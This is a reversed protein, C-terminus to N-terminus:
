SEIEKEGYRKEENRRLRGKERERERERKSKLYKKREIDKNVGKEKRYGRM